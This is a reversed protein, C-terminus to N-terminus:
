LSLFDFCRVKIQKINEMLGCYVDWIHANDPLSKLELIQCETEHSISSLNLSKWQGNRWLSHHAKMGKSTNWVQIPNCM